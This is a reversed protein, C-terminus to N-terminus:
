PCGPTTTAQVKSVTSCDALPKNNEAGLIDTQLNTSSGPSLTAVQFDAFGVKANNANLADYHLPGTVSQTGLNQFSVSLRCSCQNGSCIVEIRESTGFRCNIGSNTEGGCGTLFILLLFVIGPSLTFSSTLAQKLLMM